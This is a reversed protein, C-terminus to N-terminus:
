PRPRRGSVDLIKRAANNILELKEECYLSSVTPQDKNVTRDHFGRVVADLSQEMTTMKQNSPLSTGYTKLWQTHQYLTRATYMMRDQDECVSNNYSIQVIDVLRAHETSDFSSPFLACSTLFFLSCLTLLKTLRAMGHM